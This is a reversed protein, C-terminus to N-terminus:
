EIRPDKSRRGRNFRRDPLISSSRRVARRDGAKRRLHNLRRDRTGPAAHQEAPDTGIEALAGAGAIVQQYRSAQERTLGKKIVVPRGSLLQKLKSADTPESPDLTFIKALGNKVQEPTYGAALAGKFVIRFTEM